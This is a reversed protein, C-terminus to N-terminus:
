TLELRNMKSRLTLKDSSQVTNGQSRNRAHRHLWELAAAGGLIVLNPDPMPRNNTAAQPQFLLICGSYRDVEVLKWGLYPKILGYPQHICVPNDADLIRKVSPYRSILFNEM